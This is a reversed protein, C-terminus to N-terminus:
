SCALPQGAALSPDCFKIAGSGASVRVRWSKAETNTTQVDVQNLGTSAEQNALVQGLPGFTVVAANATVTITPNSGAAPSTYAIYANGDCTATCPDAPLAPAQNCKGAVEGYTYAGTKDSQSVVWVSSSTSYACSASLDSVLQFRMPANRKIAETRALRLGSLISEAIARSRATAIMGSMTPAALVLLAAAIAMTVVLEILSVGCTRM